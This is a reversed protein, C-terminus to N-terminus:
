LVNPIKFFHYYGNEITTLGFDLIAKKGKIKAQPDYDWLKVQLINFTTIPYGSEYFAQISNKIKEL